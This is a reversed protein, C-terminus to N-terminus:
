ARRHAGGGRSHQRDQRLGLDKALKFFGARGYNGVGGLKVIHRMSEKDGILVLSLATTYGVPYQWLYFPEKAEGKRREGTMTRLQSTSALLVIHIDLCPYSKWEPDLNISGDDDLAQRLAEIVRHDPNGGQIPDNHLLRFDNLCLPREIFQGSLERKYALLTRDMLGRAEFLEFDANLIGLAIAAQARNDAQGDQKLVQILVETLKEGEPKILKRARQVLDFREQTDSHWWPDLGLLIMTAVRLDNQSEFDIREGRPTNISIIAPKEVDIVVGKKILLNAIEDQGKQLAKKLAAFEPKWGLEELAEAAAMRVDLDRDGLAKVLDKVSKSVLCNGIWSYGKQLAKKLAAFDSKWGLEKLAEAAATRVGSDKQYGLAKILGVVDKKAKMKEVNPPGFIGM